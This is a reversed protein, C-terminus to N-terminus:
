CRIQHTEVGVEAGVLVVHDAREGLDDAVGAARGVDVLEDLVGEGALRRRRGAQGAADRDRVAAGGADVLRREGEGPELGFTSKPALSPGASM